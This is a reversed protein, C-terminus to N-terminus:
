VTSMAHDWACPSGGSSTATAMSITRMNKCDRSSFDDLLVAGFVEKLVCHNQSGFCSSFMNQFSEEDDRGTDGCQMPSLEMGEEEQKVKCGAVVTQAEDLNVAPTYESFVSASSHGYPSIPDGYAEWETDHLDPCSNDVISGRIISADSTTQQSSTNNNKSHKLTQSEYLVADLLGSNRPSLSGSETHETPPPSQILTDISELSPLPSSSPSYWSGMQSQLSPLEPKKEWSPESSYSSNGNLTAHSGPIVSLLSPDDSALNQNYASSVGFSQAAAIYAAASNGSQFRSCAPLFDSGNDSLGPFLTETGRLRKSPHVTSQFYRNGCSSKLGQGVLSSSPIDLLSSAPIDVLAPPPYSHQNLELNKFEVAPIEFCNIQFLDPHQMDGISFINMDGNQKSANISKLCLDPPYIPLGARQRRKIRTNWYNKIENDTRGPLEAAMRAWKNGMKAHLEIIRGEEEPTFSGKKLDPRLHNAWRLRCSKGCRALGSHKQVANWNGEGHKTVYDVLIADEASTWPGKKLLVSGGTKGGATAEEISPSSVSGKFTMRDESESTMSM